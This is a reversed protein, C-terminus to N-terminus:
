SSALVIGAMALNAVGLVSVFLGMIRLTRTSPTRGSNFKELIRRQWGPTTELFWRRSQIFWAPATLLAVGFALWVLSAFGIWMWALSPEFFSPIWLAVFVAIVVWQLWTWPHRKPKVDTGVECM